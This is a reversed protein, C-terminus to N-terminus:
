PKENSFSRAARMDAKLEPDLLFIHLGRTLSLYVITPLFDLCRGTLQRQWWQRYEGKGTTSLNEPKHDAGSFHM